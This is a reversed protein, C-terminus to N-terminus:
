SHTLLYTLFYALLFTTEFVFSNSLKVKFSWKQTGYIEELMACIKETDYGVVSINYTDMLKRGTKAVPQIQQQNTRITERDEVDYDDIHFALFDKDVLQAQSQRVKKSAGSTCPEGEAASAEGDSAAKRKRACSGSQVHSTLNYNRTFGKGCTRCAFERNHHSTTVHRNLDRKHQYVKSCFHCPFMSRRHYRCFHVVSGQKHKTLM